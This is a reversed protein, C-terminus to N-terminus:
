TFRPSRMTSSAQQPEDLLTVIRLAAKAFVTVFAERPTLLAFCGAARILMQLAGLVDSFISNSLTTTLFSLFSLSALLAPWGANLM